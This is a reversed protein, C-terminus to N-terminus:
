RGPWCRKVRRRCSRAPSVAGIASRPAGYRHSSRRGRVGIGAGLYPTIGNWLPLDVYGNLLFRPRTAIRRPRERLAAAPSAPAASRDGRVPPRPHPRRSVLVLVPLRPRAGVIAADTSGATSWPRSGTLAAIGRAAPSCPTLVARTAACIGAPDSRRTRTMSFPLPRFTSRTRRRLGALGLALAALAFIPLRM